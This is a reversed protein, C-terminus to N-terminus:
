STTSNEDSDGDQRRMFEAEALADLMDDPDSSEINRFALEYSGRERLALIADAVSGHLQLFYRRIADVSEPLDVAEREVQAEAVAIRARGLLQQMFQDGRDYAQAPDIGHSLLTEESASRSSSADQAAAELFRLTREIAKPDSM